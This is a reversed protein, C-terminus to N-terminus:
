APKNKDIQLMPFQFNAQPYAIKIIVFKPDDISKWRKSFSM